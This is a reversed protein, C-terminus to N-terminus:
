NPQICRFTDRAILLEENTPIAYVAIKGNEQSILGEKGNTISTNKAKDLTIGVFDLERCILDRVYASNEGIGGSFVLGDIGNLLAIYAGIYKRVNTCFIDIALKARRDRHEKHEAILERMDHTLGSIGLLGSHSNLMDYLSEYSMGEKLHLFNPISPDIDGSRTGMCLGELPTMGMSTAFSNGSKIACASSGNGLHLTIINVQDKEIGRLKRYRYSIYRHSTGHFGYRRVKHRRYFQYPIPYIYNEEPMSTHFSTDFVAVQPMKTGFIESIAHIGSLNAQNHLPALDICDAIGKMVKEDIIVSTKFEEGGHVVRHGAAHIDSISKISEIDSSEGIIWQVIYEIAQRHSKIPLAKKEIHDGVCLTILAQSGIREIVGKALFTENDQKLSEKSVAVLQFKLSSSGCNFVLINM